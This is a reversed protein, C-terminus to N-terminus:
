LGRPLARDKKSPASSVFPKIVHPTLTFGEYIITGNIANDGLENLKECIVDAEDQLARKIKIDDLYWEGNIKVVELEKRDYIRKGASTTIVRFRKDM